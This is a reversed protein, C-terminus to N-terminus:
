NAKVFKITKAQNGLTQVQLFYNGSTLKNVDMNVTEKQINTFEKEQILQGKLDFIRFLVAEESKPFDVNINLNQGVPNPYVDVKYTSPLDDKTNIRIPWAWLIVKPTNEDNGFVNTTWPANANAADIIGTYRPKGAAANVAQYAGYDFRPRNDFGMFWSVGTPSNIEMMAIYAQNNKLYVPTSGIFNDLKFNVLSSAPNAAVTTEGAAVLVRENTEISDNRNLDNWEYLTAVYNRPATISTRDGVYASIRTATSSAGKPFYYYNGVKWPRSGGGPAFGNIFLSTPRDRDLRLLSDTVSYIANFRLTDDANFADSSDYLISYRLDYTAPTNPALFGTPVLEAQEMAAAVDGVTRTATFVTAQTTSNIVDVKLKVNKANSSGNNIINAGFRLSDINARQVAVPTIAVFNPDIKMNNRPAGIKVDDVIWYYYNGDFVFKVRFKDTGRSGKLKIAVPSTAPMAENVLYLDNETICQLASWTTGGDESWSVAASAQCPMSDSSYFHRYSQSFMLTLDNFGRADVVPSWLEGRHGPIKPFAVIAGAPSSGTGSGASSGRNDLFDSNFIAAGRGRSIDASGIPVTTGWFAGKSGTGDATWAWVTSDTKSPLDDCRFGATIWGKYGALSTSLITDKKVIRISSADAFQSIRITNTDATPWIIQANVATVGLVFAVMLLMKTFFKKM